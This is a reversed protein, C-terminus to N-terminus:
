VNIETYSIFQLFYIQNNFNVMKVLWTLASKDSRAKKEENKERFFKYYYSYKQEM